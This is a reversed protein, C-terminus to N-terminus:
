SGTLEVSMWQSRNVGVSGWHDESLGASEWDDGVSGWQCTIVRM